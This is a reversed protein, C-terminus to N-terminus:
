NKKMVNAIIHEIKREFAPRNKNATAAIMIRSSNKSEPVLSVWIKRHSMFFASYLGVAIIMCGLYVIWVGPDKRVQMGTYQAGWFDIFEVRNGDPLDWTKPYRKLIWGSYLKRNKEFFNVFVAPNTMMESYTYASSDPRFALAPSFDAVKGSIDTGPISFSSGPEV